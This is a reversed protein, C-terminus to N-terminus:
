EKDWQYYDTNVLRRYSARCKICHYRGQLDGMNLKGDVIKMAEGAIYKLKGACIPCRCVGEEKTLKVPGLDQTQQAPGRHWQYYNTNVIKRYVSNCAKCLYHAEAEEMILRGGTVKVPEREVFSMETECKPCKYVGQGNPVIKMPEMLIM